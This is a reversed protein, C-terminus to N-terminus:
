HRREKFILVDIKSTNSFCLYKWIGLQVYSYFYDYHFWCLLSYRWDATHANKFMGMQVCVFVCEEWLENCKLYFHYCLSLCIHERFKHSFFSIRMKMGEEVTEWTLGAPKFKGLSSREVAWVDVRKTSTRLPLFCRRSSILKKRWEEIIVSVWLCVTSINRCLLLKKEWSTTLVKTMFHHCYIGAEWRSM